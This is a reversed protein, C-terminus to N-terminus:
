CAACPGINLNASSHIFYSHTNVVVILLWPVPGTSVGLLFALPLTVGVYQFLDEAVHHYSSTASMEKISHHVKHFRWM